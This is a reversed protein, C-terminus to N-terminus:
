GELWEKRPWGNSFSFLIAVCKRASFGVHLHRGHGVGGVDAVLRRLVISHVSDDCRM